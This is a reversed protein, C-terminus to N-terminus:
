VRSILSTLTRVQHGGQDVETTESSTDILDKAKFHKEKNNVESLKRYIRSIM